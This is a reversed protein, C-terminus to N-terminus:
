EDEKLETLLKTARDDGSKELANFASDESGEKLYALGLYFYAEDRFVSGTTEVSAQLHPLAETAEGLALHAVGIFYNLSDSEPKMELLPEWTSIAEEYNERKYDIMGTYFLYQDTSSMPTILGPDPEFYDAFLQEQSSQQFAFFWAALGVALLLTAAALFKILPRSKNPDSLSENSNDDASELEAHFDDLRSKLVATEVGEMLLGYDATAKQLEENKALRQKFGTLEQDNMEGRLYREIADLEKNSINEFKSNLM